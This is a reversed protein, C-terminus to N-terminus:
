RKAVDAGFGEEPPWYGRPNISAGQGVPTAESGGPEQRAAQFLEQQRDLDNTIERPEEIAGEEEEDSSDFMKYYPNTEKGEHLPSRSAMRKKSHKAEKAAAKAAQARELGEALSLRSQSTILTNVLSRTCATLAKNAPCQLTGEWPARLCVTSAGPRPRTRLVLVTSVARSGRTRVTTQPSQPRPSSRRKSAASDGSAVVAESAVKTAELLASGKSHRKSTKAHTKRAAAKTPAKAGGKATGCPM